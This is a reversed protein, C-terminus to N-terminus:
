KRQRSLSFLKNLKEGRARAGEKKMFETEWMDNRRDVGKKAVRAIVSFWVLGREREAGIEM